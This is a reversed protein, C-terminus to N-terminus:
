QGRGGGGAHGPGGLGALDIFISRSMPQPNAVEYEYDELTLLMQDCLALTKDCNSIGTRNQTIHGALIAGLLNEGDGKRKLKAAAREFKAIAQERNARQQMLSHKQDIITQRAAQLPSHHGAEIIGILLQALNSLLENAAGSDVTGEKDYRERRQPDSLVDYALQIPHFAEKSGGKDPHAKSRKKLYAARIAAANADPPLELNDYLSM